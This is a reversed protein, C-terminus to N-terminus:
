LRAHVEALTPPDAGPRTCTIAAATAAFRLADAWVEEGYTRLDDPSTMGNDILFSLLAGALTDGAGITDAVEVRPAAVRVSSGDALFAIAGEGGLTLVVAALNDTGTALLERAATQPDVGPFLFDLDQDSAKVIHALPLFRDLADRWAARDGNLKPRVTPDLLVVARDRHKRLVEETTAATLPALCSLMSLQMARLSAPLVPRPQPDWLTDASGAGRFSFVAGAESATVIAMACPADSWSAWEMSVNNDGLWAAVATGFQDTSFQGVAAVTQGLRAAAVGTNLPSGGPHGHLELPAEATSTFDLVVEGLVAITPQSPPEHV